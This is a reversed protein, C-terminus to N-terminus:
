RRCMLKSTEANCCLKVKARMINYLASQRTTLNLSYHPVNQLLVSLGFPVDFQPWIYHNCGIQPTFYKPNSFTWFSFAASGGIKTDGM